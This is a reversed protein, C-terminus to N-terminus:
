LQNTKTILDWLSDAEENYPLTENIQEESYGHSSVLMRFAELVQSLTLDEVPAEITTTIWHLTLTAKM